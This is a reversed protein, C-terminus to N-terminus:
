SGFTGDAALCLIQIPTSVAVALDLMRYLPQSVLNNPVLLALLALLGRCLSPCRIGSDPPFCMARNRALPRRELFVTM